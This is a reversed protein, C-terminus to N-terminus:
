QRSAEEMDSCPRERGPIPTDAASFRIVLERIHERALQGAEEIRGAGICALLRDHEDISRAPSDPVGSMMMQYRRLQLRIQSHVRGLIRNGSGAVLTDHFDAALRYYTDLDGTAVSTRMAKSMTELSRLVGPDRHTALLEAAKAEIMERVEFLELMEATSLPSIVVGRHPQITVIGEAELVRFAERLPVRSVGLRLALDTETLRTGPKLRGDIIAVRLSAAIREPLLERRQLDVDAFPNSPPDSPRPISIPDPHKADTM